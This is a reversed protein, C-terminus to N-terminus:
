LLFLGETVAFRAVEWLVQSARKKVECKEKRARCEANRVECKAKGNM